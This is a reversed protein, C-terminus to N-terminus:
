PNLFTENKVYGTSNFCVQDIATTLNTISKLPKPYPSLMLPAAAATTSASTTTTTSWDGGTRLCQEGSYVNVVGSDCGCAVHSGSPSVALKTGLLCGEDTFCHVCDRTSMDWVYVKGDGTHTHMHTRMRTYTHIHTLMINALTLSIISGVEVLSCTADMQLLPCM